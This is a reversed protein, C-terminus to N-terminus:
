KGGRSDLAKLKVLNQVPLCWHIEADRECRGRIGPLDGLFGLLKAEGMGPKVVGLHQTGIAEDGHPRRGHVGFADPKAGAHQHRRVANGRDGGIRQRRQVLEGRAADVEADARTEGRPARHAKAGDLDPVHLGVDL